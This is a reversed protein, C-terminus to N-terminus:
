PDLAECERMDTCLNYNALFFHKCADQVPQAAPGDTASARLLGLVNEQGLRMKIQRECLAALHHMGFRQGVLFLGYIQESTLRGYKVTDTYLYRVFHLLLVASMDVPVWIRKSGARTRSARCGATHVEPGGDTVVALILSDITEDEARAGEKDGTEGTQSDKEPLVEKTGPHSMPSREEPSRPPAMSAEYILQYLMPCRVQILHSHCFIGQATNGNDAGLFVNCSLQVAEDVQAQEMIVEMDSSLTCSPIKPALQFEFVDNHRRMGNSGGFIVMSDKRLVAAHLDRGPPCQGHVAVRSWVHTQLDLQQLDDHRVGDNGGYLYIHDDRLVASHAYRGDSLDTGTCALRRWQSTPFHFSFVDGYRNIGSGGVIYMLDDNVMAQHRYRGCPLEGSTSVYEWQKSCLDFRYMDTPYNTGHTGGWVYLSEQYLM